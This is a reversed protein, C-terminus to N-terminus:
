AKRTRQVHDGQLDAKPRVFQPDVAPTEAHYTPSFWDGCWEWVNGCLNYLDYGNPEYSLAPAPGYTL